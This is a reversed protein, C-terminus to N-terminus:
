APDVRERRLLHLLQPVFQVAFKGRRGDLAIGGSVSASNASWSACRRNSAAPTMLSILGDLRIGVSVSRNVGIGMWPSGSDSVMM